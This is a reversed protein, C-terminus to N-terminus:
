STSKRHREALDKDGLLREWAMRAEELVPKLSVIPPLYSSPVIAKVLDADPLPVGTAITVPKSSANVLPKFRESSVIKRVIQRIRTVSKRYRLPLGLGFNEKSLGEFTSGELFNIFSETHEKSAEPVMDLGDITVPTYCGLIGQLVSMNARGEPNRSEQRVSSVAKRFKHIDIDVQVKHRLGLLLLPLSTFITMIPNEIRVPLKKRCTLGYGGELPEISFEDFIPSLIAKVLQWVSYNNVFRVRKRLVQPVNDLLGEDTNKGWSPLVIQCASHAILSELIFEFSTVDRFLVWKNDFSYEKFFGYIPLYVRNLQLAVTADPTMMEFM